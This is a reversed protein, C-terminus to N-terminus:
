TGSFGQVLLRYSLQNHEVTLTAGQGDGVTWFAETPSSPPLSAAELMGSAPYLRVGGTQVPKQDIRVDLTGSRGYVALVHGNTEAGKLAVATNGSARGLVKLRTQVQLKSSNFLYFEGTNYFDFRTSDTATYHPDGTSSCVNGDPAPKSRDVYILVITFEASMAPVFGVDTVIFTFRRTEGDRGQHNPGSVVSFRGFAGSSTVALEGSNAKDRFSFDRATDDFVSIHGIVTGLKESTGVEFTYSKQLPRPPEGNCNGRVSLAVLSKQPDCILCVDSKSVEGASFCTGDPLRCAKDLCPDVFIPLLTDGYNAADGTLVLIHGGAKLDSPLAFKLNLPTDVKPTYEGLSLSGLSILIKVNVHPKPFYAVVTAGPVVTKPGVLSASILKRTVATPPLVPNQSSIGSAAVKVAYKFASLGCDASQVLGLMNTQLTLTVRDMVSLDCPEVSSVFGPPFVPPVVVSKDARQVTMTITGSSGAYPYTGELKATVVVDTGRPAGPVRADTNVNNDIDFFVNVTILAHTSRPLSGPALYIVGLLVDNAADASVLAGQVLDLGVGASIGDTWLTRLGEAQCQPASDSPLTVPWSLQSADSACGDPPSTGSPPSVPARCGDAGSAECIYPFAATFARDAVAVMSVGSDVSVLLVPMAAALAMFPLKRTGASISAVFVVCLDSTGKCKDKILTTVFSIFNSSAESAGSGHVAINGDGAVSFIGGSSASAVVGLDSRVVGENVTSLIQPWQTSMDVGMQGFEIRVSLPTRTTKAPPAVGVIGVDGFGPLDLHMGDPIDSTRKPSFVSLAFCRVVSPSDLPLRLRSPTVSQFLSNVDGLVRPDVQKDVASLSNSLALFLNASNSALPQVTGTGLEAVLQQYTAVQSQTVAFIPIIGGEFLATAVQGISPYAETTEVIADGDNAAGRFDSSKHYNADTMLVVIRQAGGSTSWGVSSLQKAAYFLASLQSEPGDGGGNARLNNVGGQLANLNTTLKVDVRFEYDSGSGFGCCPKDVYSALGVRAGSFQSRIKSSIDTITQRLLNLDDRM